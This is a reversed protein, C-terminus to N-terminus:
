ALYRSPPKSITPTLRSSDFDATASKARDRLREQRCSWLALAPASTTSANPTFVIGAEKSM